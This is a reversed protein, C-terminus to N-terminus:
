LLAYTYHCFFDCSIVFRLIIVFVVFMVLGFFFGGHIYLQRIGMNEKKNKSRKERCVRQRSKM